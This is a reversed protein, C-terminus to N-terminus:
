ALRTSLLWPAEQQRLKALLETLDSVLLDPGAAALRHRPTAGTCVAVALAGTGRASAVDHASDGVVITEALTGAFGRVRVAQVAQRVLAERTPTVLDAYIVVDLLSPLESAQLKPEGEERFNGTVVGVWEGRRKLFELCDRAGPLLAPPRLALGRRVHALYVALARPVSSPPAHGGHATVVGQVVNAFMQGLHPAIVPPTVALAYVEHFVAVWADLQDASQTVLTGDIDFLWLRPAAEM